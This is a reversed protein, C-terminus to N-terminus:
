LRPMDSIFIVLRRWAKRQFCILQSIKTSTKANMMLVIYLLGDPRTTEAFIIITETL